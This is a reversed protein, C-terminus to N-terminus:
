SIVIENLAIDPQARLQLISDVFLTINSAVHCHGNIRENGRKQEADTQETNLGRDGSRHPAAALL